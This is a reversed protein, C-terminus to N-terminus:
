DRRERILRIREKILRIREALTEPIDREDRGWPPLEIVDRDVREPDSM